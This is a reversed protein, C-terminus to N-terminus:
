LSTLGSREEDLENEAYEPSICVNKAQLVVTITRILLSLDLKFNLHNVYEVDLQLRDNWGLYNRGSVQALGTIGPRVSHRLKESSTYFPLYKTKLPRPGVLSMSGTLVNWLQPLEDLSYKRLFAGIRFIRERDPLRPNTKM